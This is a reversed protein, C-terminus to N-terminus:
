AAAQRDDTNQENIDIMKPLQKQKRRIEDARKQFDDGSVVKSNQGGQTAQETQEIQEDEVGEGDKNRNDENESIQEFLKEKEVEEPPREAEPEMERELEEEKEEAEQGGGQEKSTAAGKQTGGAEKGAGEVGGEISEVKTTAEATEAAGEAATAGKAAVAGVEATEGAEAAVAGAGGTLAAAGAMEAVAALKPNNAILIGAVVCVTRGPVGVLELLDDVLQLISPGGFGCKAFFWVTFIGDMAFNIPEMIAEGPLGVIAAALLDFFIEAGDNGLALLVMIVISVTDFTKKQEDM